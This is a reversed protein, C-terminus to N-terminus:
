YGSLHPQSTILFKTVTFLRSNSTFFIFCFHPSDAKHRSSSTFLPLTPSFHQPQKFSQGSQLGWRTVAAQSVPSFDLGKELERESSQTCLWRWSLLGVGEMWWEGRVCTRVWGWVRGRERGVRRHQESVTRALKHRSSKSELVQCLKVPQERGVQPASMVQETLCGKSTHTHTPM